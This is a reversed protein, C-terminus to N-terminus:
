MNTALSALLCLAITDGLQQAASLVDGTQGAIKARAVLGAIVVGVIAGATAIITVFGGAILTAAGAGVLAAMLCALVPPAGIDHSMGDDRAPPQIRMLVPLFARSMVACAVAVQPASAVLATLAVWRVGISLILAIVGFSGIMDERMIELRRKVTDGNWFGNAAKALGDEHMAGSAMIQVMLLVGAAVAPLLGAMIVGHGALAALGAVPIGALPFAWTAPAVRALAADSVSPMPLRTLVLMAVIIDSPRPIDSKQM